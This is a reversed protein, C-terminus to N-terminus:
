SSRWNSVSDSSYCVNFLDKHYFEAQHALTHTLAVGISMAKPMFKRVWKDGKRVLPDGYVIDEIPKFGIVKEIVFQDVLWDGSNLFLLYDGTAQDIGKNMAHYIGEDPESISYVLKNTHEAIFAASGDNSGGDIVIYEISGYTQEFVSTMTTKLGELHNYNITIISLQM